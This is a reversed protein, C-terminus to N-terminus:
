LATSNRCIYIVVKADHIGGCFIQKTQGVNKLTGDAWEACGFESFGSEIQSNVM